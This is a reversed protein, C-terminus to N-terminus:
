APFHPKPLRALLTDRALVPIASRVAGVAALEGYAGEPVMAQEFATAKTRVTVRGDMRNGDPVFGVSWQLAQGEGILGLYQDGFPGPTVRFEGYLGATDERLLIGYGIQIHVPQNSHATLLRIRNAARLQHRFANPEFRETLSEDIQKNVGFPVMIGCLLRKGAVTRMELDAGEFTRYEM